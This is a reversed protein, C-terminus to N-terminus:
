VVKFYEQAATWQELPFRYTLTMRLEGEKSDRKEKDGTFLDFCFCILVAFIYFVSISLFLHSVVIFQNIQYPQLMM